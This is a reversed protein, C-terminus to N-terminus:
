EDVRLGCMHCHNMIATSQVFVTRCKERELMNSLTPTLNIKVAHLRNKDSAGIAKDTIIKNLLQKLFVIADYGRAFAVIPQRVFMFIKLVM